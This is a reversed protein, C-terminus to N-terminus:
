PYRSALPRTVRAPPVGIQIYRCDCILHERVESAEKWFSNASKRYPCLIKSDVLLNRFAFALFSNMGQM